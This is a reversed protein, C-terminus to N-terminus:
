LDIVVTNFDIIRGVLKRKSNVNTLEISDGYVGSKNALSSSVLNLTKNEIKVKVRSGTKVLIIPSIDSTKILDGKRVSHNLRYFKLDNIDTLYLEPKTVAVEVAELSNTFNEATKTSVEEKARYVTIKKLIQARAWLNQIGPTLPNSISLKINHEGLIECQSCELSLQDQQTLPLINQTGIFNIDKIVLGNDLTLKQGILKALTTIEVQHPILAVTMTANEESLMLNVHDSTIKGEVNSVIKAVAKVIETSCNTKRIFTTDSVQNIVIIKDFTEMDCVEAQALTLNFFFFLAFVFKM